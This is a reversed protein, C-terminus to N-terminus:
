RGRLAPFQDTQAAARYGPRTQVSLHGPGKAVVRIKRYSGDLAQNAPSYAITYQSRIQRALVLAVPGVEAPSRPYYVLGGTEGALDDLEDRGHAAKRPDGENLLGIVYIVIASRRARERIEDRSAVSANDNGDSVLLLVKRAHTAHETLYGEGAALADRLATGGVCTVGSIGEELLRVDSTFPVDLTPKDAYNLVFVEDRPNSAHVLALAAEQVDARVPAMSRSHDLALGLSVPADERSFGTMTEPKGNEYVAFASRDLDTVLEGRENKVTAQLVVVGIETRFVPPGSDLSPAPTAEAVLLGIVALIAAAPPGTVTRIM